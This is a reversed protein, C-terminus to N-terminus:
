GPRRSARIADMLLVKYEELSVLYPDISAALLEDFIGDAIERRDVVLTSRLLIRTRIDPSIVTNGAIAQLQCM